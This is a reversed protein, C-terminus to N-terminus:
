SVKHFKSPTSYTKKEEKREENCLFNLYIIFVDGEKRIKAQDLFLTASFIFRQKFNVADIGVWSAM